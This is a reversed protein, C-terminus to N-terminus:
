REINSTRGRKEVALLFPPASVLNEFGYRAVRFEGQDLGRCFDVVAEAEVGGAPHGPYCVVTAVGGPALLGLAAGLATLTTAAETTRTKDGGPLYGLNFMVAGVRGRDGAAIQEGMVEHGAAVLRVREAVGAWSLRRGTERLATDQVDFAYVRGASGVRHALFLTDHGNGATADVAIGGEALAGGVLRHAMETPKPFKMPDAPLFPRAGRPFPKFTHYWKRSEPM